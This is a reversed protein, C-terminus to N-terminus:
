GHAHRGFRRRRVFESDLDDLVINTLLRSLPRGLPKGEETKMLTSNEVVGRQLCRRILKLAM